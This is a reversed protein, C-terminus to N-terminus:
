FTKGHLEKGLLGNYVSLVDIVHVVEIKNVFPACLSVERARVVRHCEQIETTLTIVEASKSDYPARLCIKVDLGYLVCETQCQIFFCEQIKDMIIRSEGLM